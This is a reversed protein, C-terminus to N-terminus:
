LHGWPGPNRYPLYMVETFDLVKPMTERIDSTGAVSTIPVLLQAASM